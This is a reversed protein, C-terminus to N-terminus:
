LIDKMMIVNYKPVPNTHESEAAEYTIWQDEKFEVVSARTKSPQQKVSVRKPLDRDLKKLNLFNLEEEDSM